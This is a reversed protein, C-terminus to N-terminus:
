SRPCGRWRRASLRHEMAGARDRRCSTVCGRSRVARMPMCTRITRARRPSGNSLDIRATVISM